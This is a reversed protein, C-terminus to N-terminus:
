PHVNEIMQQLCLREAIREWNKHLEKILSLIRKITLSINENQIDQRRNNMRLFSSNRKKRSMFTM